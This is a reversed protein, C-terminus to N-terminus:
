LDLYNNEIGREKRSWLFNDFVRQHFFSKESLKRLDKDSIKHSYKLWLRQQSLQNCAEKVDSKANEFTAKWKTYYDEAQNNKLGNKFGLSCAANKDYIIFPHKFWIWLMKTALSFLEKDTHPKLENIVKAVAEARENVTLPKSISIEDLMKLLPRFREAGKGPWNRTVRYFKLAKHLTDLRSNESQNPLIKCFQEDKELWQDAYALACYNFPNM